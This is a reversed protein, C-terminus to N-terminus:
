DLIKPLGLSLLSICDNEIKPLGISLVSMGEYTTWPPIIIDVEKGNIDKKGIVALYGEGTKEKTQTYFAIARNILEGVSIGEEEEAKKVLYGNDQFRIEENPFKLTYTTM